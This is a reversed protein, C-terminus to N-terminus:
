PRPEQRHGRPDLKRGVRRQFFGSARLLPKIEPKTAYHDKLLTMAKSWTGSKSTPGGSTHLAICIAQFGAAGTPISKPSLSSARRSSSPPATKSASRDRRRAARRPRKRRPTSRSSSNRRPRTSSRRSRSSPRRPRTPRRRPNITPGCSRHRGPWFGASEDLITAHPEDKGRAATDIDHFSLVGPEGSSGRAISLEGITGFRAPRRPTGATSAPAAVIRRDDVRPM